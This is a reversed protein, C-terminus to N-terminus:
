KKVMKLFQEESILKTGFKKAASAKTSTSALDNIVLYTLNKGVSSKVTGGNDIVMQELVTRKNEMTGTFCFSTDSFVGQVKEKIKLGNTLLKNIVSKNEELGKILSKAKKPGFGKINEVQNLKLNLIKELSDYGNEVLLKITSVAVLPISLGGLFLELAVPNVSWLSKYVNNASKEGMRELSAIDDVKLTYLDSISSVLGDEVLRDILKDGLELINLTSVWTKIKGSVQAPCDVKNSCMLNEGDFYTKSDCSPCNSPPKAVSGTPQINEEIRPIIDGARSVIVIAGVDLKLEDIYTYNYLSCKGLTAGMLEVPNFYAVPTIRGTHGVQHKISTIFTERTERAFKVAIKLKPRNNTHGAELQKQLSNNSIVLGDLDYPLNDRNEEVQIKFDNVEKSTKLVKYEPIEFGFSKLIQFQEEETKIDVQDTIIQYVVVNLHECGVGDFRRSIGSAANRASSYDEFYKKHNEKSLLIEGRILGTFFQGAVQPLIKESYKVNQSLVGQMKKANTTIEDGVEGTGRSAAAILRGNEYALSISGGDEKYTAFIREGPEFNEEIWEDTEEKTSVKNLSGMPHSHNYKPWENTTPAGVAVVAKNSPDISKLEDYWADYVKDSVKSSGNYYDSRAQLIKEELEKIRQVQNM